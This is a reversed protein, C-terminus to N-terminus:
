HVYLLVPVRDSSEDRDRQIHGSATKYTWLTNPEDLISCENNYWQLSPYVLTTNQIVVALLAQHDARESCTLSNVATPPFQLLSWSCILQWLHNLTTSCIKVHVSTSIYVMSGFEFQICKWIYFNSLQSYPGTVTCFCTTNQLCICSGGWFHFLLLGIDSGMGLFFASTHLLVQFFALTHLSVVLIHFLANVQICGVHASLHSFVHGILTSSAKSTWEFITWASQHTLTFVTCLM